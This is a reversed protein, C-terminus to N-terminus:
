TLGGHDLDPGRRRAREAAHPRAPRLILFGEEREARLGGGLDLRGGSALALDALRETRALTLSLRGGTLQRVAIRLVRRVMAPHESRLPAAAIALFGGADLTLNRLRREALEDLLDDEAGLVAAARALNSEAAPHLRRELLPILARVRNRTYAPSRNTEDESWRLHRQRLFRRLEQPRFELLPRIRRGSVYRMAGLGRRGSGRVLHWLVTEAQDRRHHALAIWRAGAEEAVRELFAHRARRLADESPPTKWPALRELTCPLGHSRCLDEVRAAARRGSAGRVAHDLHAVRVDPFGRERSFDVLLRLLCVSDAGGSVAAVLGDGARVGCRRTLAEAFRAAFRAGPSATHLSPM